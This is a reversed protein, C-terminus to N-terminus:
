RNAPVPQTLCTTLDPILNGHKDYCLQVTWSFEKSPWTGNQLLTNPDAGLAKLLDPIKGHHWCILITKGDSHSRLSDALQQFRRDAYSTDIPLGLALSLPTITLSPRM